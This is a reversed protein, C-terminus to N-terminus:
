NLEKKMQSVTAPLEMKKLETKGNQLLLPVDEIKVLELVTLQAVLKLAKMIVKLNNLRFGNAIVEPIGIEEVKVISVM